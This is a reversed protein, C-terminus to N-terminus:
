VTVSFGAWVVRRRTDWRMTAKVVRAGDSAGHSVLIMTLCKGIVKYGGGVAPRNGGKFSRIGDGRECYLLVDTPPRSGAGGM